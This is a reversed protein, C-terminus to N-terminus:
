DDISFDDYTVEQFRLPFKSTKENSVLDTFQDELLEKCDDEDESDNEDVNEITFQSFSLTFKINTLMVTELNDAYDKGFSEDFKIPGIKDNILKFKAPDKEIDDYTLNIDTVADLNTGLFKETDKNKEGCPLYPVICQDLYTQITEPTADKPLEFCIGKQSGRQNEPTFEAVINNFVISVNNSELIFNTLSKM